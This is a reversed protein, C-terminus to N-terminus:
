YWLGAGALINKRERSGLEFFDYGVFLEVWGFEVGTSIHWHYLGQSGIRGWDFNTTIYWPKKLRIDFGYTTNFGVDTTEGDNLWNVGAGIRFSVYRIQKLHYILNADGNWFRRNALITRQDRRYNFESDIGLPVGSDITLHGHIMSRGDFNSGYASRFRGHWLAPRGLLLLPTLLSRAQVPRVATPGHNVLPSIAGDGDNGTEFLPSFVSFLPQPVGGREEEDGAEINRLRYASEDPEEDFRLTFLRQLVSHPSEDNQVLSTRGPRRNDTLTLPQPLQGLADTASAFVILACVGCPIGIHWLVSRM